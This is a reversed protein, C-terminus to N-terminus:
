LFNPFAYLLVSFCLFSTPKHVPVLWVYPVHQAPLRAGDQKVAHAVARIFHQPPERFLPNAGCAHERAIFKYAPVAEGPERHQVQAINHLLKSLVNDDHECKGALARLQKRAKGLEAAAKRKKGGVHRHAPLPQEVAAVRPCM